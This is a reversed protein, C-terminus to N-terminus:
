KPKEEEKKRQLIWDILSCFNNSLFCTKGKRNFVGAFDSYAIKENSFYDRIFENGKKLFGDKIKVKFADLIFKKSSVNFTIKKRLGIM